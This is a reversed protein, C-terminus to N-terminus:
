PFTPINVNNVGRARGVEDSLYITPKRYYFQCEDSNISSSTNLNSRTFSPFEHLLLATGTHKHNCTHVSLVRSKILDYGCQLLCKSRRTCGQHQWHSASTM